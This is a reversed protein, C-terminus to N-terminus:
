RYHEFNIYYSTKGEPHTTNGGLFSMYDVANHRLDQTLNVCLRPIVAYLEGSPCKLM